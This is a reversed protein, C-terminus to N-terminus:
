GGLYKEEKHKGRWYIKKIDLPKRSTPTAYNLVLVIQLEFGMM